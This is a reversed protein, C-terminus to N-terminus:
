KFFQYWNKINHAFHKAIRFNSFLKKSPLYQLITSHFRFCNFIQVLIFDNCFVFHFSPVYHWDDNYKKKQIIEFQLPFPFFFGYTCVFFFIAVNPTNWNIQYKVHQHETKWELFQLRYNNTSWEQPENCPFFQLKHLNKGLHSVLGDSHPVRHSEFESTYTQLNLKSVMVQGLAVYKLPCTVATSVSLDIKFQVSMYIKLKLSVFSLLLLYGAFGIVAAPMSRRTLVCLVSYIHKLWVSSM